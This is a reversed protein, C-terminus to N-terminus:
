GRLILGLPFESGLDWGQQGPLFWLSSFGLVACGQVARCFGCCCLSPFNPVPIKRPTSLLTRRLGGFPCVLTTDLSSSGQKELSVFLCCSNQHWQCLGLLEAGSHWFGKKKWKDNVELQLNIARALLCWNERAYILSQVKQLWCM